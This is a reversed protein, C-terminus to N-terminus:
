RTCTRCGAPATISRGKRGAADAVRLVADLPHGLSQSEVLLRLSEGKRATFRYSDSARAGDLHGTISAPLTVLFDSPQDKGPAIISGERVPLSITNAMAPGFLTVAAQDKAPTVTMPGAKRMGSDSSGSSPRRQRAAAQEEHEAADELRFVAEAGHGAGGLAAVEGERQGAPGVGGPLRQFFDM